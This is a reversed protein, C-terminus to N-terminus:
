VCFAPRLLQPRTTMDMYTGFSATRGNITVLVESGIPLILVSSM